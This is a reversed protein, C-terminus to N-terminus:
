GRRHGRPSIMLKAPWATEGNGTDYGTALIIKLRAGRQDWNQGIAFRNGDPTEIDVYGDSAVTYTLDNQKCLRRFRGYDPDAKRKPKKRTFLRGLIEDLFFEPEAM